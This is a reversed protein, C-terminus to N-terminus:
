PLYVHGCNRPANVAAVYALFTRIEAAKQPDSKALIGNIQAIRAPDNNGLVAILETLLGSTAKAEQNQLAYNKEWTQIANARFANGADCSSVAQSRLQFVAYGALLVAVVLVATLIKWWKASKATSEAATKASEASKQADAVKLQLDTIAKEAAVQMM